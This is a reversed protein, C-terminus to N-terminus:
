DAEPIALGECIWASVGGHLVKFPQLLFEFKKRLAVAYKEATYIRLNVNKLRTRVIWVDIYYITEVIYNKKM